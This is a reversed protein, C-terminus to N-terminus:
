VRLATLEAAVSPDEGEPHLSNLLRRAAPFPLQGLAWVAHARILPRPDDLAKALPAIAEPHKSNGLAIIANRQFVTLGRWGVASKGLGAAWEEKDMALVEALIPYPAGPLIGGEAAPVGQNHPCVEQCLDCGGLASGMLPRLDRPIMGKMQTLYSICRAYDVGSPTLAGTPCAKLCRRCGLCRSAPLPDPELEIDTLIEGLVVWSGRGPVFLSRNLGYWGLGANFAAFRDIIPGTDASLLFHGGKEQVLFHALQELKEQLVVHYDTIWAYRALVGHLDKPPAPASKAYPIAAAIVSRAKPLLQNPSQGWQRPLFPPLRDRREELFPAIAELNAAHSIGLHDIGIEAAYEKLLSALKM